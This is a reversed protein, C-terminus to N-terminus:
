GGQDRFSFYVSKGDPAWAPFQLAIGKGDHTALVHPQAGDSSALYLDTGDPIPISGTKPLKYYSFVIQKGDPSFCPNSSYEGPGFATLKEPKERPFRWVWLNGDTDPGFALRGSLGEVPSANAPATTATPAAQVQVGAAPNSPTPALVPTPLAQAVLT